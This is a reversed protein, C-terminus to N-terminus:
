DGLLTEIRTTVEDADVHGRWEAVIRGETDILFMAPIAAVAFAHWAPADGGDIAVAYRASHADLFKRVHEEGKEDISVGVVRLRRGFRNQLESLTPMMEICPKCWTAWFDVLVARGRLSSLTLTDGELMDLSVDPAPRPLAHTAYAEPFADFAEACSTSCFYYATGKHMRHAAVHEKGHGAGRIECARCVAEDPHETAEGNAAAEAAAETHEHEDSAGASRVSAGALLAVLALSATFTWTTM